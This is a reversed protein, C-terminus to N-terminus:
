NLVNMCTVGIYKLKSCLTKSAILRNLRIAHLVAGFNSATLRLKRAGAWLHNTRQGVTLSAVSAVTEPALTLHQRLYAVPTTSQLFPQSTLVEEVLPVSAATSVEPSM